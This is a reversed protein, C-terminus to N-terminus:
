INVNKRLQSVLEEVADETLADIYMREGEHSEFRDKFKIGVKEVAISMDKNLSLNHVESKYNRAFYSRFSSNFMTAGLTIPAALLSVLGMGAGGLVTKMDDYVTIDKFLSPYKTKAVDMVNSMFDDFRTYKDM